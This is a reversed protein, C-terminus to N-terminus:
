MTIIVEHLKNAFFISSITQPAKANRETMLYVQKKTEHLNLTPFCDQGTALFTTVSDLALYKSCSFSILGGCRIQATNTWQLPNHETGTCRLKAPRLPSRTPGSGARDGHSECPKTHLLYRSQTGLMKRHVKPVIFSNSDELIKMYNPDWPTFM